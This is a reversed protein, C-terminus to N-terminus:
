RKPAPLPILRDRSPNLHEQAWAVVKESHSFLIVQRETSLEHLATLIALMRIDDSQALVEDLILPATEATTVLHQAIAARLLLFVQERTGHSLCKANRWRGSGAEKVKVSLLAPDVGVDDYRGGTVTALRQRVAHALVPALDRHVREQAARLFGLTLDLTEALRQVRKLEIEARTVNEEAEPVSRLRSARNRLEGELTRASSLRREVQDRLRGLQTPADEELQVASLIGPDIGECLSVARKQKAELARELEALTAGGLIVTLERWEALETESKKLLDTRQRQWGRLQAVLADEGQGVVEVSTRESVARLAGRSQAIRAEAAAVEQEAARRSNLALRLSEVRAAGQAQGTRERCACEYDTYARDTDGGVAVGREALEERIRRDADRERERAHAVQKQWEDHSRTAASFADFQDALCILASSDVPISHERAVAEADTRRQRATETAIEWPRAAAEAARLAREAAARERWSRAALLGAAIAVLLGVAALAVSGTVAGGLAAMLAMITIGVAFANRARRGPSLRAQAAARRRIVDPDPEPDRLSLETALRRLEAPPLGGTALCDPVAPETPLQQLATRAARLNVWAAALDEPPHLDGEPPPPLSAIQAEIQTSSEGELVPLAPRKEWGEIAGAVDDALRDRAPLGAPPAPYRAALESARAFRARLADTDRSEIAAEVVKLDAAVREHKRRADDAEAELQLYAEHQTRTDELAKQADDLGVIALRLPRTANVRDLGVADSKFDELHHIAGAATADTAHSAAARQLCEQLMPAAEAVALIEAQDICVTKAFADRTLGLWRSADPAGEHMIEASLDRGIPLEIAACVVRGALDQQMEVRRGDDLTLRAEVAWEEPNDWPRHLKAFEEDAASPRGRGRRLGCIAARIAAHWSSKGAENAGAVVTMGPALELCEDRFPGFARARVEDIRM